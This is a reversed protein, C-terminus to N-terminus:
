GAPAADRPAPANTRGSSKTNSPPRPLPPPLGLPFCNLFGFPISGSPLPPSWKKKSFTMWSGAFPANLRRAAERLAGSPGNLSPLAAELADDDNEAFVATTSVVTDTSVDVGSQSQSQTGIVGVVNSTATLGPM